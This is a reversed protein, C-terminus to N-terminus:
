NLHQFVAMASAILQEDTHRNGILSLGVPAGEFHQWPMVVQPLGALGAMCLMRFSKGRTADVTEATAQLPIAPGPVPPTIMVADKLIATVQAHVAARVQQMAAIEEPTIRSTQEFRAAVDAGFKPSSSTIWHRYQQWIEGGQLIRFANAWGALDFTGLPLVQYEIKLAALTEFFAKKVNDDLQACLDESVLFKKDALSAPIAAPASGLLVSMTKQLLAGERAFVGITDFSHALTLCGKGSVRGHSTRIGWIGCYSSPLRISGACDSGLAIDAYGTAVSVVSGSSSGGPVRDPAAPNMPTGYHINMGSLSYTLEDTVTKGVWSAGADLLWQIAPATVTAVPQTNKWDPNGAGCTAGAVDFIDKAALRVGKLVSSVADGQLPLGYGDKVFACHMGEQLLNAKM